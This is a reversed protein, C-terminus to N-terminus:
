KSLLVAFRAEEFECRAVAELHHRRWKEEVQKSLKLKEEMEALDSGEDEFIHLDEVNESCSLRSYSRNLNTGYREQELLNDELVAEPVEDVLGRSEWWGLVQEVFVEKSMHASVDGGLLEVIHEADEESLHLQRQLALVLHGVTMGRVECLPELDTGAFFIELSEKLGSCIAGRPSM